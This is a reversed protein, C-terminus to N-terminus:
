AAFVFFRRETAQMRRVWAPPACKTDTRTREKQHIKSVRKKSLDELSGYGRINDFSFALDLCAPLHPNRIACRLDSFGLFSLRM